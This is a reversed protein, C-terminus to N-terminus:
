VRVAPECDSKVWLECDRLGWGDIKDVLRQVIWEDMPGKHKCMTGFTSGAGRERIVIHVPRGKELEKDDMCM